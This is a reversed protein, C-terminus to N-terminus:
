HYTSIATIKKLKTTKKSIIASLKSMYKRKLNQALYHSEQLASASFESRYDLTQLELVIRHCVHSRTQPPHRSSTLLCSCITFTELAM